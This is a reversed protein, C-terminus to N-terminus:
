ENKTQKKNVFWKWFKLKDLLSTNKNNKQYLPISGDGPRYGSFGKLAM